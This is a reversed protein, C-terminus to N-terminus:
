VGERDPAHDIAEREVVLMTLTLAGSTSAQIRLQDGANTPNTLDRKFLSLGAPLLLVEKAPVMLDPALSTVVGNEGVIEMNVTCSVNSINAIQIATAFFLEGARLERDLDNPDVVALDENSLQVSFYPAEAVTSLITGIAVQIINRRAQPQNTIIKNPM